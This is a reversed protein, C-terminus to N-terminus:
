GQRQKLLTDYAWQIDQFKEKALAQFEEGLHAVKDPHYRSAQQRYAHKIEDLTASPRVALIRYPDKTQPKPRETQPRARQSASEWTQRARESRWDPRPRASRAPKRFFAWYLVVMLILDDIKGIGPLFDPILDFPSLFYLLWFVVILIRLM